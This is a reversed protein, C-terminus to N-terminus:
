KAVKILLPILVNICTNNKTEKMCSNVDEKFAFTMNYYSVNLKRSKVYKSLESNIINNQVIYNSPTIIFQIDLSIKMDSINQVGDKSKKSITFSFISNPKLTKLSMFEGSSPQLLSVGTKFLSLDSFFTTNIKQYSVDKDNFVLQSDSVNKIRVIISSDKIMFFSEMEIFNDKYLTQSKSVSIIIILNFLIVSVRNM